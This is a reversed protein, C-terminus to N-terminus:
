RGTLMAKLLRDEASHLEGSGQSRIHHLMAFAVWMEPFSLNPHLDRRAVFRHQEMKCIEYATRTRQAPAIQDIKSFFRSAAGQESALGKCSQEMNVLAVQKEQASLGRVNGTLASAAYNARQGIAAQDLNDLGLVYSRPLRRKELFVLSRAAMGSVTSRGEKSRPNDVRRSLFDIFGAMIESAQEQDLPPLKNAGPVAPFGGAPNQSFSINEIMNLNWGDVIWEYHLRLRGSMRSRGNKTSTDMEIIVANNDQSQVQELINFVRPEGSSFIWGAIMPMSKDPVARGSITREIDGHSLDPHSKSISSLPSAFSNTSAHAQGEVSDATCSTCYILGGIGVVSVFFGFFLITSLLCGSLIKAEKPFKAYKGLFFGLLTGIAEKLDKMTGGM